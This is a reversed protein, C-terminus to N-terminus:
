KLRLIRRWFPRKSLKVPRNNEDYIKYTIKPKEKELREKEEEALEKKQKSWQRILLLM